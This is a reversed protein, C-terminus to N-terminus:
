SHFYKFADSMFAYHRLSEIVHDQDTIEVCEFWWLPIVCQFMVDVRCSLNM